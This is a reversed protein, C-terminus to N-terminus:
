VGFALDPRRSSDKGRFNPNYSRVLLAHSRPNRLILLPLLPSSNIM